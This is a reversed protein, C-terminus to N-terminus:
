AAAPWPHKLTLVDGLASIAFQERHFLAIALQKFRHIEAATETQCVAQM